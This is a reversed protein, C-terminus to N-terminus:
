VIVLNLAKAASIVDEPCQDSKGGNQLKLGVKHYIRGYLFQIIAYM